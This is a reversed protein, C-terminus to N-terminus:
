QLCSGGRSSGKGPWQPSSMEAFISTQHSKAAAVFLIYQREFRGSLRSVHSAGQKGLTIPLASGAAVRGAFHNHMTDNTTDEMTM